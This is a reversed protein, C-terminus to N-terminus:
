IKFRKFNSVIKNIEKQTTNEVDKQAARMIGDLNQLKDASTKFSQQSNLFENEFELLVDTYKALYDEVFNRERKTLLKNSYYRRLIVLYESKIEIRNAKLIEREFKKAGTATSTPQRLFEIAQSYAIKIDNWNKLESISFVSFKNEPVDRQEKLANLAPSVVKSKTLNQIRRNAQQFIRRIEKRTERTSENSQLIMEYTERSFGKINVTLEYPIEM